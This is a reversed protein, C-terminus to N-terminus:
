VGERELRTIETRVCVTLREAEQEDEDKSARDTGAIDQQMSMEQTIRAIHEAHKQDCEKLMTEHINGQTQLVHEFEAVRAERADTLERELDQLSRETEM